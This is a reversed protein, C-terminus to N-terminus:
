DTGDEDGWLMDDDDEVEVALVLYTVTTSSTTSPFTTDEDVLVDEDEM